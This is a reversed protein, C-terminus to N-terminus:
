RTDHSIHDAAVGGAAAGALSTVNVILNTPTAGIVHFQAGLVSKALSDIDRTPADNNQTVIVIQASQTEVALTNQVKIHARVIDTFQSNVFASAAPATYTFTATGTADTNATLPSIGGATINTELAITIGALGTGSSSTVTAKIRATAGTFAVDAAACHLTATAAAGAVPAGGQSVYVGIPVTQRYFMQDPLSTAVTLPGIFGGGTQPVTTPHINVVSYFNFQANGNPYLVWGEWADNRWAVVNKRYYLINWPIDAAVIAEVQKVLNVRDTTNTTYLAQNILADVASNSYGASNSGAPN